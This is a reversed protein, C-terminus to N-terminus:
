SQKPANRAVTGPISDFRPLPEEHEPAAETASATPAAVEGGVQAAEGLSSALPSPLAPNGAELAPDTVPPSLAAQEMPPLEPVAPAMSPPAIRPPERQVEQDMSYFERVVVSRVEDTQRRFERLFKGIGRALEPLRQPGLVLLAAILIFVMEGAGINFM